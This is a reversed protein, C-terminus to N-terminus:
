KSSGKEQNHERAYEVYASSILGFKTAMAAAVFEHPKIQVMTAGDDSRTYVAPHAKSM